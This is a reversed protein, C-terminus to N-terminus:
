CGPLLSVPQPPSPSPLDQTEGCFYLELFAALGERAARHWPSMHMPRTFDRALEHCPWSHTVDELLIVVFNSTSNDMHEGRHRCFVTGPSWSQTTTCRASPVPHGESGASRVDFEGDGESPAQTMEDPQAEDKPQARPSSIRGSDRNLFCTGWSSSDFIFGRPNM